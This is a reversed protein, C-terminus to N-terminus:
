DVSLFLDKKWFIKKIILYTLMGMGTPIMVYNSFIELNNESILEMKLGQMSLLSFFNFGFHLLITLLINKNYDYILGLLVSAFIISLLNEIQFHLMGFVLSTVGIGTINNKFIGICIKQLIGRFFLEEGIAPLISLLVVNFLFSRFSKSIFGEQIRTNFDQQEKLFNKIEIPLFDYGVYTSILLFLQAVGLLVVFYLLSKTLDSKNPKRYHLSFSKLLFLFIISPVLFTGLQDFFALAKHAYIFKFEKSNLDNFIQISSLDWIADIFGLAIMNFVIKVILVITISLFFLGIYNRVPLLDINKM